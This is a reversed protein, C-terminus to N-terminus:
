SLLLSKVKFSETKAAHQLDGAQCRGQSLAKPNSFYIYPLLHDHHQYHQKSKKTMFLCWYYNLYTEYVISIM